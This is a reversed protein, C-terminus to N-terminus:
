FQEVKRKHVRRIIIPSTVSVRRTIGSPSRRVRVFSPTTSVRRVVVSPTHRTKNSPPTIRTTYIPEIDTHEAQQKVGNLRGALISLLVTVILQLLIGVVFLAFGAGTYTLVTGAVVLCCVGFIVSLFSLIPGLFVLYINLIIFSILFSFIITFFIFLISVISLAAASRLYYYDDIFIQYIPGNYTSFLSSGSTPNTCGSLYGTTNLVINQYSTTSCSFSSYSTCLLSGSNSNQTYNPAFCSYFLNAEAIIVTNNANTGVFWSPIGDGICTLLLSIIGIIGCTLGLGFIIKDGNRSVM